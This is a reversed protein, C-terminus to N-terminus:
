RSEAESINQYVMWLMKKLGAAEEPSFGQLMIGEWHRRLVDMNEGMAQAQLTLRVMKNRRNNPDIWTTVHGNQEMRSVIGVVAPHSIELHEEIEKQTAQCEEQHYLFIVVSSQVLTLNHSKLDADARVKLKEDINKILYGIDKRDLTSGGEADSSRLETERRWVHLVNCIIVDSCNGTLTKKSKNKSKNEM